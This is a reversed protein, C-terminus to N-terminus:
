KDNSRFGASYSASTFPVRRAVLAPNGRLAQETQQLSTLLSNRSIRRVVPDVFPRAAVPIDRSLAIAEFEIYVGGDQGAFRAISFLKWIYGGGEGEPVIHEGAQGYDEIEQVRTSRSISYFRHADLRVTTAQYDADL